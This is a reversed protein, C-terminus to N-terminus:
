TYFESEKNFLKYMTVIKWVPNNKAHEQLTKGIDQSTIYILILQVVLFEKLM